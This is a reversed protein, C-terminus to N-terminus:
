DEMIEDITMQHYKSDEKAKIEQAERVLIDLDWKARELKELMYNYHTKGDQEMNYQIANVNDLINHLMNRVRVDYDIM